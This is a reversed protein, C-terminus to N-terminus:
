DNFIIFVKENASYTWHTIDNENDRQPQFCNFNVIEGTEPLAIQPWSWGKPLSSIECCYGDKTKTWM